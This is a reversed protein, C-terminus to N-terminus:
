VTLIEKEKAKAHMEVSIKHRHMDEDLKSSYRKHEDESIDKDKKAQDFEKLAEHRVNRMAIMCDEVKEHLQKVIQHRREETLPPIPIRVIRGDDTPNLGLSQNDRIASAIAQVNSPDFPNIQLLQAEPTTVNAVQILPMSQGYAEVTVGDLMSPHARGTRLKKLEGEFRTIAAQFKTNANSLVQDPSMSSNYSQRLLFSLPCM